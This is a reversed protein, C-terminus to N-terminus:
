RSGSCAINALQFEFYKNKNKRKYIEILIHTFYINKSKLHNLRNEASSFLFKDLTIPYQNLELKHEHAFDINKSTM